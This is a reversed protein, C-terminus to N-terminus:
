LCSISKGEPLENKPSPNEWRMHEMHTSLYCRSLRRDNDDRLTVDTYLGENDIFFHLNTNNDANKWNVLLVEIILIRGEGLKIDLTILRSDVGCQLITM